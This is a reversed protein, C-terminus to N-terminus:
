SVQIKVTCKRFNSLYWIEHFDTWQSDLQEIRVSLRTSMVFSVTAKPLTAFADLLM